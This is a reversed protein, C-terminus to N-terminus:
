NSTPTINYIVGNKRPFNCIFAGRCIIQTVADLGDVDTKWDMMEFWCRPDYLFELTSTNLAYMTGAAVNPDWTLEAEKFAATAMGLNVHRQSGTFDFLGMARAIRTYDQYIKRTTLYYDPTASGHVYLTAQNHMTEMEDLLNNGTTLGTFDKTLNQLVTFDSRNAGGYTGTTPTTTIITPLADIANPDADQVLTSYALKDALSMKANEVIENVYDLLKAKGYNMLDDTFFRPIATGFMQAEFKLRTLSEKESRGFTGGRSYWKFNQDQKAYRIPYEFHTGDPLKKRIRGKKVMTDWFPTIQFVYDMVQPRIKYFTTTILNNISINRTQIQAM